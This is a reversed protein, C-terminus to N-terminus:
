GLDGGTALRAAGATSRREIATYLCVGTAVSVNLSEVAGLMPLSVLLDCHERTLRRLGRGEGGMVIAVSGCLDAAFLTTEAEGDTGIRRIGRDGLDRLTRALNTVQYFPVTESAGSAVKRVTATLGAARDRPAVVADVGTADATRLCAGLNHPDQVGDLVLLLLEPRGELAVALDDENGPPRPKVIAVVGQHPGTARKELEERSVAETDVGHRQALERVMNLRQDSREEAVLLGLVREPYRRLLHSVAHIGWVLADREGIPRRHRM